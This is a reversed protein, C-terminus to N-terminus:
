AARPRGGARSRRGAAAPLPPFGDLAEAARGDRYLATMLQGALRERLPNMAVLGRLEELVERHRRLRLLADLRDELAGLRAEELGACLREAVAPTATGALATGSWLALAEELVAVRAEDGAAGKAAGRARALLSRFRHVDIVSRDAALLYGSGALQVDLGDAGRLASRLGSVCVQIAHQATRPPEEPWALDVLRGVDVARGAELALVAFVLRQKRPGLAIARQGDWAGVPGLLRIRVGM